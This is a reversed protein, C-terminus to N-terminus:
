SLRRVADAVLQASAQAHIDGILQLRGSAIPVSQALHLELQSVMAVGQMARQAIIDLGDQKAVEIATKANIEAGVLETADSLRSLERSTRGTSATLRHMPLNSM